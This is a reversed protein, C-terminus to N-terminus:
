GELLKPLEVRYFTDLGTLKPNGLAKLRENYAVLAATWEELNTSMFEVM